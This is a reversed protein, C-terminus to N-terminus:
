IDTRSLIAAPTKRITRFVPFLGVILNLGYIVILTLLMTQTSVLYMQDFYTTLHSIKYLIYSTLLFGPMSAMTTIALIESAFMRYIDGKKVGIARYVGIEKIRSLFSARIILFIEIFSILLVVGAMVLTSFISSWKSKKYAKLSEQYTDKVNAGGAKLEEMVATKDSPCITINKSKKIVYYKIMRSNVLMYDSDTSDAYYGSVKLKQGNIKNKSIEKGIKWDDSNKENM